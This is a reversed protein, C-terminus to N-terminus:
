SISSWQLLYISFGTGVHTYINCKLIRTWGSRKIGSTSTKVPYHMLYEHASTYLSWCAIFKSINCIIPEFKVILFFLYTYIEHLIKVKLIYRIKSNYRIFFFNLNTKGTKSIKSSSIPPSPLIITDWEPPCRFSHMFILEAGHYPAGAPWILSTTASTSYFGTNVAM